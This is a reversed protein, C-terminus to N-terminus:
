GLVITFLIGLGSLDAMNVPYFPFMEIMGDHWFCYGTRPQIDYFM